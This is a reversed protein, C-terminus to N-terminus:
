HFFAATGEGECPSSKFSRRASSSSFARSFFSRASRRRLSFASSLFFSPRSQDCSLQMPSPPLDNPSDIAPVRGHHDVSLEALAKRDCHVENTRGTRCSRFGIRPRHGKLLSEGGCVLEPHKMRERSLAQLLISASGNRWRWCRQTSNSTRLFAGQLVQLHSILRPSAIAEFFLPTPVITRVPFGVGGEITPCQAHIAEAWKRDPYQDKETDILDSRRLGLSWLATPSLDAMVLDRQPVIM